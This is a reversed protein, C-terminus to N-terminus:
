KRNVKQFCKTHRGAQQDFLLGYDSWHRHRYHVPSCWSPGLMDWARLFWGAFMLSTVRAGRRKRLLSEDDAPLFLRSSLCLQVAFMWSNIRFFFLLLVFFVDKSKIANIIKTKIQFHPHFKILNYHFLLLLSILFANQIMKSWISCCTKICVWVTQKGWM